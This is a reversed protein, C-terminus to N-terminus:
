KNVKLELASIVLYVKLWTLDKEINLLTEHNLSICWYFMHIIFEWDESIYIYIDTSSIECSKSKQFIHNQKDKGAMKTLKSSMWTLMVPAIISKTLFNINKFHLQWFGKFLFQPLRTNKFLQLSCCIKWLNGQM